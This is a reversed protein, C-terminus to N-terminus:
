RALRSSGMSRVVGGNRASWTPLRSRGAASFSARARAGLTLDRGGLKGRDLVALDLADDLLLLFDAQLEIVSPSNATRPPM